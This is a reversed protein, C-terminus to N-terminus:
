SNLLREFDCKEMPKAYYYGQINSCGSDFVFDAQEVTEVGESIMSLNLDNAMAVVHKIIQRGNIVNKGRLFGMDLKLIDFPLDKLTNLSSFGTGFDDMAVKFGLRHLGEVKAAIDNQDQAYASETIEFYIYKSPINYRNKITEVSKIFDDDELTKRSVNVSVPVPKLGKDLWRKVAMFAQEWMYPDLEKIFGNREFVPIFVSPNVMTGDSKKWRCLTEAGIMQKTDHDFQPQFFPIFEGAIIALHMQSTVMIEGDIKDKLSDSYFLISHTSSPSTREMALLAENVLRELEENKGMSTSIGMKFTIPFTIGISMMEYSNNKALYDEHEKDNPYCLIFKGGGMRGIIGSDGVFEKCKEGALILFRDGLEFGYLDNVMSLQDFDVVAVAYDTDSNDSILRRANKYFGPQSFLGTLDDYYYSALLEENAYIICNEIRNIGLAAAKAMDRCSKYGCHGCDVHQKEDTDKHMLHFVYDIEDESVYKVKKGDVSYRKAFDSYDLDIFEEYLHELNKTSDGTGSLLDNFQSRKKFYEIWIEKIDRDSDDIGASSICGAFCSGWEVFIPRVQEDEASLCAVNLIGDKVDYVQNIVEKRDFFLRMYEAQVGTMSMINGIGMSKLESEAFFDDTAIGRIYNMFHNLTLVYEFRKEGKGDYRDDMAGICSTIYALKNGDKIYKDVYVATCIGPSCVPVIYDVLKPARKSLFKIVSPCKSSIFARDRDNIHDYLFRITAWVSIDAGFAADYFHQAGINKLYGLIQGAKERLVLYFVPDLVISINEGKKLDEFFLETDDTYQRANHSCSSICKGCHLCDEDCVEIHRNEEDCVSVNANVSPCLSICKNCGICNDNTTIIGNNTEM